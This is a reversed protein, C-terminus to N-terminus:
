SGHPVGVDKGQFINRRGVTVLDGESTVRTLRRGKLNVLLTCNYSKNERLERSCYIGSGLSAISRVALICCPQSIHTGEKLCRWGRIRKIVEQTDQPLPHLGESEWPFLLSSVITDDVM